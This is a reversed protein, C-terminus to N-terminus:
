SYSCVPRGNLDYVDVPRANFENDTIDIVGTLENDLSLGLRVPAQSAGGASVRLMARFPNLTAGQTAGEAESKQRVFQGGLFGYLM